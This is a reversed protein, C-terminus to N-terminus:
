AAKRHKRRLIRSKHLKNHKRKRNEHTGPFYPTNNFYGSAHVQPMPMSLAALGLAATLLGKNM